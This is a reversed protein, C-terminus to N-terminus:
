SFSVKHGLSEIEMRNKHFQNMAHPILSRATYIDPLLEFKIRKTGESITLTYHGNKSKNINTKM